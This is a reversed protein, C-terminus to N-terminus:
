FEEGALQRARMIQTLVAIEDYIRWERLIKGDRVEFHTIGM